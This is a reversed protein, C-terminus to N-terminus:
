LLIFLVHQQAPLSPAAIWNFHLFLNFKWGIMFKEGLKKFGIQDWVHSYFLECFDTSETSQASLVIMHWMKSLILSCQSGVLGCWLCGLGVNGVISWSPEYSVLGRWVVMGCAFLGAVWSCSRGVCRRVRIQHFFLALWSSSVGVCKRVRIQHFFLAQIEELM